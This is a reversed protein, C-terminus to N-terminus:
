LIIRVDRTSVMSLLEIIKKLIKDTDCLLGMVFPLRLATHGANKVSGLGLM